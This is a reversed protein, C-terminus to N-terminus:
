MPGLCVPSSHTYVNSVDRGLGEPFVSTITHPINQTGGSVDTIYIGKTLRGESMREVHGFWRLMSKEVKAHQCNQMSCATSVTEAGGRGGEM